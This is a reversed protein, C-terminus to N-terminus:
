AALGKERLLEQLEGAEYMERTIDAGGIFEGKIFLQPVKPWDSFEKIGQHIEQDELVNIDKFAIGEQSLIQVIVASFECQPFAATGKMYLVVNHSTIEKEIREFLVNQM